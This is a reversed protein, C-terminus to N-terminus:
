RRDAIEKLERVKRELEEIRREVPTEKEALRRERVELDTAWAALIGRAAVAAKRAAAADGKELALDVAGLAIQAAAERDGAAGKLPPPPEEVPFPARLVGGARLEAADKLLKLADARRGEDLAKEAQSELERARARPDDQAFAACFAIFLIAIRRM